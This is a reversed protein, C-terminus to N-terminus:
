RSPAAGVVAGGVCGLDVDRAKELGAREEAVLGDALV